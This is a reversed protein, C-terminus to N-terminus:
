HAFCGDYSIACGITYELVHYFNTYKNLLIVISNKIILNHDYMNNKNYM